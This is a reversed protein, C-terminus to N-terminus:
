TALELALQIILNWLNPDASLMLIGEVRDEANGRARRPSGIEVRRESPVDDRSVNRAAKKGLLIVKNSGEVGKRLGALTAARLSKGDPGIDIFDFVRRPGKFLRDRFEMCTEKDATKGTAAHYLRRAFALSTSQHEAGEIDVGGKKRELGVVLYREL